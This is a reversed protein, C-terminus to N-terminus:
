IYKVELSINSVNVGYKLAIEHRMQDVSKHPKITVHGYYVWCPFSDEEYVYVEAYRWKYSVQNEMKM